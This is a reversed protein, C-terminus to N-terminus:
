RRRGWFAHMHTTTLSVFGKVAWEHGTDLFQLAGDIGDGAPRGRATVRLVLVPTGDSRRYAPEAAVHLRGIQEGDANPIVYRIRTMVDEPDPLFDDSYRGSWITLVRDLQGFGEWGEGLPLQDIYTIECQNPVLEGIQEEALFAIFENINSKFSERIQEYRPYEDSADLKRWNRIFRDQQVQILESSAENLFWCRPLPPADIETIELGVNFARTPGFEEMVSPLPAHEETHPFRDRFRAWLLGMRTTTLGVLPNFQMGLTVEAIPPREFEPLPAVFKSM